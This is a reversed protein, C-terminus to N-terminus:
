RAFLALVCSTCRWQLRCLPIKGQFGSSRQSHNETLSVQLNGRQLANLAPNWLQSHSGGPLTVQQCMASPSLQLRIGRVEYVAERPSFILKITAENLLTKLAGTVAASWGAACGWCCSPSQETHLLQLIERSTSLIICKPRSASNRCALCAELGAESRSRGGGMWAWAPVLSVRGQHSLVVVVHCLTQWLFVM